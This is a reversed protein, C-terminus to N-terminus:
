WREFPSFLESKKNSILKIIVSILRISYKKNELNRVKLSEGSLINPYIKKRTMKLKSSRLNSLPCLFKSIKIGTM